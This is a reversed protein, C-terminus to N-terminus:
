TSCFTEERFFEDQSLFRLVPHLRQRRELILGVGFVIDEFISLIEAKIHSFESRIIISGIGLDFGILLVAICNADITSRCHEEVRM